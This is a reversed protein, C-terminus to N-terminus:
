HAEEKDMLIKRKRFLYHPEEILAKIITPELENIADKVTVPM